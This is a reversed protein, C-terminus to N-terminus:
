IRAPAPLRITGITTWDWDREPGRQIVLSLASVQIGRSPLQLGLAEIIPAAPQSATSYCITVHPAWDLPQGDQRSGGRARATATRATEHIATLAATPTVPLVIAEPHYGIRGLTVTVPPTDALLRGATRIMQQLQGASFEEAPGAMLTTMHLRELPTFHLGTFGSLRQRAQSALDAVEPHDRMLMHWYVTGQGPGPEPRDQWRDTMQQPLTV